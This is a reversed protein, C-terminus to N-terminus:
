NIFFHSTARKMDIPINRQPPVYKSKIELNFM